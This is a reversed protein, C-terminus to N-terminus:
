KNSKSSVIAQIITVIPLSVLAISVSPHAGLYVSVVSGAIAAISIAGGIYHGRRTDSIAAQLITNDHEIRHRQELEVMEM